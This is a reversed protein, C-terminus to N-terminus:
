VLVVIAATINNEPKMLTLHVM